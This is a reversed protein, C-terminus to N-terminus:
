DVTILLIHGANGDYPNAELVVQPIAKEQRVGQEDLYTGAIECYYASHMHGCFVGRVIDANDVIMHYVRDTVENQVRYECGGLAKRCFDRNDGDYVKVAKLTCDEEKRTSIQEHQFVLIILNERRARELDAALKEAQCEQYGMAGNDLVVVMVKDGLVRSVYYIDHAWEKELIARRSELSTQDPKGTQMQRTVDHGGLCILAEPDVGWIHKKTLEMAGHSLYDLTDGAVITQDFFGAVEMAKEIAPVSSANALWKRCQKTGMLEENGEDVEDCYNFHVDAIMCIEIPEGGKKSDIHQTRVHVGSEAFVGIFHTPDEPTGVFPVIPQALYKEKQPSTKMIKNRESLENSEPLLGIRWVLKLNTYCLGARKDLSM